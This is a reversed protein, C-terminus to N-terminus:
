RRGVWPHPCSRSPARPTGSCARSVSARRLAGDPASAQRRGTEHDLRRRPHCAPPHPQGPAARLALVPRDGPGMMIRVTRVMAAAPIAARARTPPATRVPAVAWALSALSAWRSGGRGALSARTELGVDLAGVPLDLPRSLAAVCHPDRQVRHCRAAAGTLEGRDREVLISDPCRLARLIEDVVAHEVLRRETRCWSRRHVACGRDSASSEHRHATDRNPLESQEIGAAPGM